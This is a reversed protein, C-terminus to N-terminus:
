SIELNKLFSTEYKLEYQAAAFIKRSTYRLYTQFIEFSKLIFSAEQGIGYSRIRPSIFM